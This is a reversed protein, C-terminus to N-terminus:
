GAEGAATHRDETQSLSAGCNPCRFIRESPTARDVYRRREGGIEFSTVVNLPYGCRCYCISTIQQVIRWKEKLIRLPIHRM